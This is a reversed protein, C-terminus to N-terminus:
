TYRPFPEPPTGSPVNAAPILTGAPVPGFAAAM